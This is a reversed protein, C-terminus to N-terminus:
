TDCFQRQQVIDDNHYCYPSIMLKHTIGEGVLSHKLYLWSSENTKKKRQDRKISQDPILFFFDLNCKECHKM